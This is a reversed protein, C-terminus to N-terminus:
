YDSYSSRKKKKKKKGKKSKKKSKKKKKKKSSEQVTQFDNSDATVEVAAPVNDMDAPATAPPAEEAIAATSIAFLAAMMATLTRM